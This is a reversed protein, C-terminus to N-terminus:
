PGNTGSADTGNAREALDISVEATEFLEEPPIPAPGGARVANVFAAACPM